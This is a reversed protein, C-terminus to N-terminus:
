AVSRTLAETASQRVATPLRPVYGEVRSELEARTMAWRRAKGTGAAVIASTETMRKLRLRLEEKEDRKAPLTLFATSLDAFSCPGFKQIYARVEATRQADHASM